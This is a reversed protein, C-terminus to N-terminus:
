ILNKFQALIRFLDQPAILQIRRKSENVSVEYDFNSVPYTVETEGYVNKNGQNVIWGNADVYHHPADAAAWSGYKKLIYQELEYQPQPWDNVYDFNQNAIMLVWHYLSSGYALEAIIEPTEGDQIDYSDYSTINQLIMNIIRVNLTIDTVAKAVLKGNIEFPYSITPFQQFYM